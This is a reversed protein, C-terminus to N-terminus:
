LVALADDGAPPPPLAALRPLGLMDRLAAVDDTVANLRCYADAGPFQQKLFDVVAHAAVEGTTPGRFDENRLGPYAFPVTTIKALLADWHTFVVVIPTDPYASRVRAYLVRAHLADAWDYGALNVCYAVRDWPMTPSVDRAEVIVADELRRTVQVAHPTYRRLLAEEGSPAWHTIFYALQGSLKIGGPTNRREWVSRVHINDWLRLRTAPGTTSPRALYGELLPMAEWAAYTRRNPPPKGGHAEAERAACQEGYESAATVLAVLDAEHTWTGPLATGILRAVLTTKGSEAAGTVLVASM